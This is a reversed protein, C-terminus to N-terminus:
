SAILRKSALVIRSLTNQSRSTREISSHLGLDKIGLTSVTLTVRLHIGFTRDQRPHLPHVTSPSLKTRRKRALTISFEFTCLHNKTAMRPAQPLRSSLSPCPPPLTKRSWFLCPRSRLPLLLPPLSCSMPRFIHFSAGSRYSFTLVYLFMLLLARVKSTRPQDSGQSALAARADRRKRCAAQHQRFGQPSQMEECSECYKTLAM